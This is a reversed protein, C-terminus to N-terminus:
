RHVSSPYAAECDVPQVGPLSLLADRRVLAREQSQRILSTLEPSLGPPAPTPEYAGAIVERLTARQDNGRQCGQILNARQDKARRQDQEHFRWGGVVAVALVLALVGLWLRQWALKRDLLQILEHTAEAHRDYDERLANVAALLEPM